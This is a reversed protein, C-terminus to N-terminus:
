MAFCYRKNGFSKDRLCANRFSNLEVENLEIGNLEVEFSDM